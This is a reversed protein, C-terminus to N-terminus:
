EIDNTESLYFFYSDKSCDIYELCSKIINSKRKTLALYDNSSFVKAIVEVIGNGVMYKLSFEDYLASKFAIMIEKAIKYNAPILDIFYKFGGNKRLMERESSAKCFKLGIRLSPKFRKDKLAIKSLYKIFNDIFKRNVKMENLEFMVILIGIVPDSVFIDESYLLNSLKELFTISDFHGILNRN